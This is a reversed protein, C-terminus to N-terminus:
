ILIRTARSMHALVLSKELKKSCNLLIVERMSKDKDGGLSSIIGALKARATQLQAPTWTEWLASFIEESAM